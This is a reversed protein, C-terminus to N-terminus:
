LSIILTLMKRKGELRKKTVCNLYFWIRLKIVQKTGKIHCLYTGM